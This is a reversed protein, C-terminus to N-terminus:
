RGLEKLQARMALVAANWGAVYDASRANQPAPPSFVPGMMARLSEVQESSYMRVRQRGRQVREPEFPIYGRAIWGRFTPVSCGLARAAASVTYRIM